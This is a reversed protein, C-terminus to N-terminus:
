MFIQRHGFLEFGGDFTLDATQQKSGRDGMSGRLEPGALTVPNVTGLPYGYKFYSDQETQTLNLKLHWDDSISHELRAFVEDTDIDYRNWPLCLCTDRSLKLDAGSQYRPLGLIFPVANQSSSSFGVGILTSPSVDYELVGYVLTKNRTAIDYFFDQDQYTL